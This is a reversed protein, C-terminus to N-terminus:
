RWLVVQLLGTNDCDYCSQQPQAPTCTGLFFGTVIKGNDAYHQIYFCQFDKVTVNDSQGNPFETDALIPVIGVRPCLTSTICVTGAPPAGPVDHPQPEYPDPGSGTYPSAQYLNVCSSSGGQCLGANDWDMVQNVGDRTKGTTAGTQTSISWSWTTPDTTVPAPVAGQYGFEIDNEYAQAGNNPDDPYGVSGFNGPGLQDHPGVHVTCITPNSPPALPPSSPLSAYCPDNPDSALAWPLLDGPGPLAPVVMAVASAVIESNGAGILYRFGFYDHRRASVVMTQREHGSLVISDVHVHYEPETVNNLEDTTVGNLNAYHTATIVAVAPDPVPMLKAAGALAAGDVANQLLRRNFYTLGVDTVMAVFGALVVFM